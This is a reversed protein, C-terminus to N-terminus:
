SVNGAKLLIWRKEIDQKNRLVLKGKGDYGGRATKLVAPYGIGRMEVYYIERLISLQM